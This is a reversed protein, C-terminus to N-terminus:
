CGAAPHRGPLPVVAGLTPPWRGALRHLKGTDDVRYCALPAGAASRLVVYTRIFGGSSHRQRLEALESHPGDAEPAGQPAHYHHWLGIAQKIVAGSELKPM